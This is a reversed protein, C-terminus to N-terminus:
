FNVEFGKTMACSCACFYEKEIRKLRSKQKQKKKRTNKTQKNSTKKKNTQKKCRLRSLSSQYSLVWAEGHTYVALASVQGQQQLMGQSWGM